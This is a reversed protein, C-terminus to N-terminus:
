ACRRYPFRLGRAGAHVPETGTGIRVDIQTQCADTRTIFKFVPTKVEMIGHYASLQVPLSLLQALADAVAPQQQAIDALAQEGHTPEHLLNEDSDANALMNLGLYNLALLRAALAAPETTIRWIYRAAQREDPEPAARLWAQLVPDPTTSLPPTEPCGTLSQLIATDGLACADAFADLLFTQAAVAYTDPAVTSLYRCPLPLGRVMSEPLGEEILQFHLGQRLVAERFSHLRTPRVAHVEVQAPGRRLRPGITWFGATLAHELIPEWHARAEDGVWQLRLFHPLEVGTIPRLETWLSSM